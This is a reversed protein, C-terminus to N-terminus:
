AVDGLALRSQRGAVSRESGSLYLRWAEGTTARRVKAAAVATCMLARRDHADANATLDHREKSGAWCMSIM